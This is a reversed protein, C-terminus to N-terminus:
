WSPLECCQNADVELRQLAWPGPGTTTACGIWAQFQVLSGATGYTAQSVHPATKTGFHLKAIQLLHAYGRPQQEFNMGLMNIDDTILSDHM